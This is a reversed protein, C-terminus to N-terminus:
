TKPIVAFTRTSHIEQVRAWDVTIEAVMDSKFTVTAGNSRQLQGILKEGNSFILVDQAQM